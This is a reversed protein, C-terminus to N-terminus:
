RSAGAAPMSRWARSGIWRGHVPWAPRQGIRGHCGHGQGSRANSAILQNRAIVNRPPGRSLRLTVRKAESAELGTWISAARLHVPARIIKKVPNGIPRGSRFCLASRAVPIRQGQRMTRGTRGPFGGHRTDNAVGGQISEPSNRTVQIFAAVEVDGGTLLIPFIVGLRPLNLM